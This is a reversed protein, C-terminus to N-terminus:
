LSDKRQELKLKEEKLKKLVKSNKLNKLNVLIVPAMDKIPRYLTSEDLTEQKVIPYTQNAQDFLWFFLSLIVVKIAVSLAGGGLKNVFGLAVASLLKDLIKGVLYMLGFVIIFTLIYGIIKLQAPDKDIYNGLKDITLYSFHIAAYLGIIISIFSFLMYILGKKFGSYFAWVLIISIGIDLYNMISFKQQLKELYDSVILCIHEIKAQM